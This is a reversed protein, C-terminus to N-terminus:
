RSRSHTPLRYGMAPPSRSRTAVQRGAPTGSLVWQATLANQTFTVGAPLAGSESIDPYSPVGTTTVTFTGAIGTTFTAHNASTIAPAEDITLDFQESYDPLIGNSATLTIPYLGGTGAAPTGSLIGSPSLTVGSPLAGSETYTAAPIATGNITFSGETGATLTGNADMIVPSM